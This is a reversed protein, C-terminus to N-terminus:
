SCIWCLVRSGLSLVEAIPEQLTMLTLIYIVYILIYLLIIGNINCLLKSFVAVIVPRTFLVSNTIFFKLEERLGGFASM